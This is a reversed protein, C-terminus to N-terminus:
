CCLLWWGPLAAGRRLWILRARLVERGGSQPDRLHALRVLWDDSVVIEVRPGLNTELFREDLLSCAMGNAPAFLPTGSPLSFDFAIGTAKGHAWHGEPGWTVEYAEGCPWPLALRGPVAYNPEGALVPTSVALSLLALLIWAVRSYPRLTHATM